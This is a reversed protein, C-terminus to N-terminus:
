LVSATPPNRLSATRDRRTMMRPEVASRNDSPVYRRNNVGGMTNVRLPAGYKRSDPNTFSAEFSPHPNRPPENPPPPPPPQAGYPTYPTRQPPALHPPQYSNVQPESYRYSTPPNTYPPEEPRLPLEFDNSRGNSRPVRNPSRGIYSEPPGDSRYKRISDARRPSRPKDNRLTPVRGDSSHRRKSSSLFFSPMLSSGWRPKRAREDDPLRSKRSRYDDETSSGSSSIPRSRSSHSSYNRSHRSDRRRDGEVSDRRDHRSPLNQYPHREPPPYQYMPASTNARPRQASGTTRTSSHSRVKDVSDREEPYLPTGGPSLVDPVSSTRRAAFKALDDDSTSQRRRSSSPRRAPAPRAFYGAASNTAEPQPSQYPSYKLRRSYDQNMQSTVFRHWKEMEVDARAPFCELPMDKPFFGGSRKPVDYIQVARQMMPAHDQPCLLLQLTQWRVFGDETLCPISPAEFANKTPSLIHFCGLTRYM